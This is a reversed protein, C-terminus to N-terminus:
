WVVLGSDLLTWSSNRNLFRIIFDPNLSEQGNLITYLLVAAVLASPLMGVLWTFWLLPLKAVWPLTWLAVQGSRTTTTCSHPDYIIAIIYYDGIITALNLPSFGTWAKFINTWLDEPWDPSQSTRSSM